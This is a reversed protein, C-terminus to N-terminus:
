IEMWDLITLVCISKLLISQVVEEIVIAVIFICDEGM